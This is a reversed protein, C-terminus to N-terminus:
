VTVRGDGWRYDPAPNHVMKCLARDGLRSYIRGPLTALDEMSAVGLEVSPSQQAESAIVTLPSHLLGPPEGLAGVGFLIDPAKGM